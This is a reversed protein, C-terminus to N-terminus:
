RDSQKAVATEGKPGTGGCRTEERLDSAAHSQRSDMRGGTGTKAARSRLTGAPLAFSSPSGRIRSAGGSKLTTATATPPHSATMSSVVTGTITAVTSSTAAAVAQSRSEAAAISTANAIIGTSNVKAVSITLKPLTIKAATCGARYEPTLGKQLTKKSSPIAAAGCDACKLLSEAVSTTCLCKHDTGCKKIHATVPTCLATCNSSSTITSTATAASTTKTTTSNATTSASAVSTVRSKLGCCTLADYHSCQSAM